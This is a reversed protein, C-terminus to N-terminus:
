IILFKAQLQGHVGGNVQVGIIDMLELGILTTIELGINNQQIIVLIEVIPAGYGNFV